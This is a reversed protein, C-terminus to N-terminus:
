PRRGGTAFGLTYSYLGAHTVLEYRAAVSRETWWRFGRRTTAATPPEPEPM